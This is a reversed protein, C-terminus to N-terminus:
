VEELIHERKRKSSTPIKVSERYKAVTRRAALINFKKLIESIDDDTYPAKKDEEEVLNKIIEKVKTSSVESDSYKSKVGSSFFFKMSLIGYPTEIYKNSTARSITSEDLDLAEAVVKLTLPKLYLVGRKFFDMQEKAIIETVSIITKKRMEVSKVIQEADKFKESIYNLDEKKTSSKKIYESYEDNLRIFRHSSKLSSIVIQENEDFYIEVDPIKAAINETYYKRGPRPDLTKIVSIRQKIDQINLKTLKELKRIEGAAILELNSLIIKYKEDFLNQEKLQLKLVEELNCSYVGTPDLTKLRILIKSIIQKSVKVLMSIEESSFKLYGSDDLLDTIYNAIFKEKECKFINNIQFELHSKLSIKEELLAVSDYNSYDMNKSIIKKSSELFKSDKFVIEESKELFPNENIKENIFNELEDSSLQLTKISQALAPNLKLSNKLQQSLQQATM